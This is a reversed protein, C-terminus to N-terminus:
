SLLMVHSKQQSFNYEALLHRLEILTIFTFHTPHSSSLRSHLFFPHTIKIWACLTLSIKLAHEPPFFFCAHPHTYTVGGGSKM